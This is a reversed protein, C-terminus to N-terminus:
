KKSILVTYRSKAINLNKILKLKLNKNNILKVLNNKKHIYFKLNLYKPKKLLYFFVRLFFVINLDYFFEVLRSHSPIDSIIIIGRKNTKRILQKLIKKLEAQAIYQIVSNIIIIDIKVKSKLLHDLNKYIKYNPIILHKKFKINQDYLLVKKFKIHKHLLCNGCGFDLITTKKLNIKRSLLLKKLNKAFFKINNNYFKSESFIISDQKM